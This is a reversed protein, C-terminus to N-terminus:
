TQRKLVFLKYYSRCSIGAGTDVGARINANENAYKKTIFIFLVKM